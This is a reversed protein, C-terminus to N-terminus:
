FVFLVFCWLMKRHLWKERYRVAFRVPRTRYQIHEQASPVIKLFYYFTIPVTNHRQKDTKKTSSLRQSTDFFFFLLLFGIHLVSYVATNAAVCLSHIIYSDTM